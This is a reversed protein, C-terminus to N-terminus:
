YFRMDLNSWKLVKNDVLLQPNLSAVLCIESLLASKKPDQFEFIDKM